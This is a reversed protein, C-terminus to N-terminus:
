SQSELHNEGGRRGEQEQKLRLHFPGFARMMEIAVKCSSTKHESSLSDWDSLEEDANLNGSQIDIMHPPPAATVTVTLSVNGVEVCFLM